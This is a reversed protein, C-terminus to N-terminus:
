RTMTAIGSMRQLFNLAVREARLVDKARGEVVAVSQPARIRSGDPLLPKFSVTEDSLRFALEAIELGAIVGDAKCLLEGMARADDPLTAESTVDGAGVDELLAAEVMRMLHSDAIADNDM